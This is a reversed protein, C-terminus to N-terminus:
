RRRYGRYRTSADTPDRNKSRTHGLFVPCSICKQIVSLIKLNFAGPIEDDALLMGVIRLVM